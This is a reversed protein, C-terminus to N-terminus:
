FTENNFQKKFVAATEAIYRNLLPAIDATFNLLYM